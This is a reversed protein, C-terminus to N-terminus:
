SSKAAIASELMKLAEREMLFAKRINWFQPLSKTKTFDWLVAQIDSLNEMRWAKLMFETAEKHLKLAKQLTANDVGSANAYLRNFEDHYKFFWATWLHSVTLVTNYSSMANEKSIAPTEPLKVIVTRFDSVGLNGNEEEGWVRFHYTGRKLGTLNLYWSTSSAAKMTINKGNWELLAKKLPVNSSVNIFIHSQSVVEGNQPTPPVFDLIPQIVLVKTLSTKTGNNDTVTLTVMYIGSVSYSHTVVKGEATTGDGFDWTYNVISGDPDYSSSANFTIGTNVGASKPTMTFSARPPAIVKDPVGDGNLDAEVKENELKVTVNTGKFDLTSKEYSENMVLFRNVQIWGSGNGSLVYVGGRDETAVDVSSNVSFGSINSEGIRMVTYPDLDGPPTLTKIDIAGEGNLNNPYSVAYFPEIVGNEKSWEAFGHSGSIDSVYYQVGSHTIFHGEFIGSSNLYYIKLEHDSMIITANYKSLTKAYEAWPINLTWLKLFVSYKMTSPLTFSVGYWKQVGQSGVLTAEGHFGMDGVPTVSMWQIEGNYNPNYVAFIISDRTLLYGFALVEHGGFDTGYKSSYYPGLSVLVPYGKNIWAVAQATTLMRKIPSNLIYLAASLQKNYLHHLTVRLWIDDLDEKHNIGNEYIIRPKYDSYLYQIPHYILGTHLALPVKVPFGNKYEYFLAAVESMGYCNGGPNDPSVPNSFEFEYSVPDFPLTSYKIVGSEVPPKPITIVRSVGKPLNTSTIYFQFKPNETEISYKTGDQPFTLISNAYLTHPSGSYTLGDSLRTVKVYSVTWNYFVVNLVKAPPLLVVPTVGYEEGMIKLTYTQDITNKFHVYGDLDSTETEVLKGDKWAEVDVFAVPVKGVMLRITHTPNVVTLEKSTTNVAGKNDTVTLTVTYTGEKSYSHKVVKGEATTGDGFDWTYNVISGDPDYSSSANFTIETNVQPTQPVFTFNAVPPINTNILPSTGMERAGEIQYSWGIVDTYYGSIKGKVYILMSKDPNTGHDSFSYIKGPSLTEVDDISGDAGYDKYVVVESEAYFRLQNTVTHENVPGIWGVLTSYMAPKVAQASMAYRPANDGWPDEYYFTRFVFVESNTLHLVVPQSPLSQNEIINGQSDLVIYYENVALAKRNEAFTKVSNPILFDGSTPPMLPFAYTRSREGPDIYMSVAVIPSNATVVVTQPTSFNVNLTHGYPIYGMNQGNVYITTGKETPTVYLHRVNVGVLRTGPLPSAYTLYSDDYDGWDDTDYRFDM